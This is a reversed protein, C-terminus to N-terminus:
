SGAAPVAFAGRDPAGLKRVLAAVHTRVTGNSVVLRRAIEATNRAQRLLVLVEWERNTLGTSRGDPGSLVIGQGGWRLQQVLPLSVARPLVVEGVLLADVADAVACSPSCSPLYGSAGSALAILAEVNPELPGLVLVGLEARVSTVEAIARLVAGAPFADLVVVATDAKTGAAVAREL